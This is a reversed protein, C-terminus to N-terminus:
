KDDMTPSVIKGRKLDVWEFTKALTSLELEGCYIKECITSDISALLNPTNDKERYEVIMRKSRTMNWLPFLFQSAHIKRENPNMDSLDKLTLKVEDSSKKYEVIEFGQAALGSAFCIFEAEDRGETEDSTLFKGIEKANDVFFLSYALKLPKHINVITDVVQLLQNRFLQVERINPPIGYWCVIKNDVIRASHHYAINRWQNLRINWPYPMLLDTYNNQILENVIQGLDLSNINEVSIKVGDAIKIQHLLVKLYPKILGETFDGINRLCEHVFEEIELTNKDAELHLVSWFESLSQIIQNKWIACSEFCARSDKTQALRYASLCKQLFKFFLKNKQLRLISISEPVLVEIALKELVNKNEFYPELSEIIAEKIESPNFGLQIMKLLPTEEKIASLIKEYKQMELDGRYM